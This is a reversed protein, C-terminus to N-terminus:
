ESSEESAEENWCNARLPLWFSRASGTGISPIWDPGISHSARRTFRCHLINRHHHETESENGSTSVQMLRDTNDIGEQVYFCKGRWIWRVKWERFCKKCLQCLWSIRRTVKNGIRANRDYAVVVWSQFRLATRWVGSGQPHPFSAACPNVQGLFFHTAQVQLPIRSLRICKRHNTLM